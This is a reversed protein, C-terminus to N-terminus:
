SLGPKVLTHDSKGLWLTCILYCYFCYSVHIPGKGYALLESIFWIRCVSVLVQWENLVMIGELCKWYSRFIRLSRECTTVCSNTAKGLKGEREQKLIWQQFGRGLSLRTCFLSTGGSLPQNGPDQPTQGSLRILQADCLRPHLWLEPAAPALCRITEPANWM